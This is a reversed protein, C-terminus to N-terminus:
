RGSYFVSSAVSEVGDPNVSYSNGDARNYKVSNWQGLLRMYFLVLERQIALQRTQTRCM